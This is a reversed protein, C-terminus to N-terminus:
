PEAGGLAAAPVALVIGFAVAERGMESGAAYDGHLVLACLRDPPGDGGGGVQWLQEAPASLELWAVDREVRLLEVAPEEGAFPGLLREPAAEGAAGGAADLLLDRKPELAFPASFHAADEASLELEPALDESYDGGGEQAWGGEGAAAAAGCAVASRGLRLAGRALLASRAAGSAFGLRLSAAAGLPNAVRLRARLGPLGPPAPTPDPGPRAPRPGPAPSQTWSPAPAWLTLRPVFHVALSCLRWWQGSLARRSSDGELPDVKPVRLLGPRGALRERRCRLSLRPRLALRRPLAARPGPFAEAAPGPDAARPFPPRDPAAPPPAKSRQAAELDSLLFRGSRRRGGSLGLSRRLAEEARGEAGSQADASAKERAWFDIAGSLYLAGSSKAELDLLLRGLSAADGAVLGAGASSYGCYGCAYAVASGDSGDAASRVSLPSSCSPCAACSSCRYGLRTAERAYAPKALDLADLCQPCYLGDVSSEVGAGSRCVLRGSRRVYYADRLACVSGGSEHYWVSAEAM